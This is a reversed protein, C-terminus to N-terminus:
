FLLLGIEAPTLWLKSIIPQGVPLPRTHTECADDNAPRLQGSKKAQLLALVDVAMEFSEDPSECFLGLLLFALDAPNQKGTADFRAAVAVKEDDMEKRAQIEALFERTLGERAGVALARWLKGSTGPEDRLDVGAKKLSALLSEANKCIDKPDIKLTM